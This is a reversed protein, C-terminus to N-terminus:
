LSVEAPMDTMLQDANPLIESATAPSINVTEGDCKVQIDLGEPLQAASIDIHGGRSLGKALRAEPKAIHTQVLHMVIDELQGRVAEVQSDALSLGDAAYSVSVSKQQSRATRLAIDTISPMLNEFSVQPESTKIPIDMKLKALRQLAPASGGSFKILPILTERAADYQAEASIIPTIEIHSEDLNSHIPPLTVEPAIEDLGEAYQLTLKYLSMLRGDIKPQSCGEEYGDLVSQATRAISKASLTRADLLIDKLSSIALKHDLRAGGLLGDLASMTSNVFDRADTLDDGIPLM